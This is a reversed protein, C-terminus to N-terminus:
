FFLFLLPWLFWSNGFGCNGFGYNGFGCNNYGYNGYGCNNFNCCNNNYYNRNCNNCCRGMTKGGITYVSLEDETLNAKYYLINM